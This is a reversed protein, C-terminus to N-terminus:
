GGYQGKVRDTVADPPNEGWGCELITGYDDLHIIDPKTKMKAKFLPLKMKDILVYYWAARGKDKGRVIYLLEGQSNKLKEAFSM